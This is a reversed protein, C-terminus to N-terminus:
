RQSKGKAMQRKGQERKWVARALLALAIAICTWAFVDGHRSYFTRGGVFDFRAVLVAAEHRPLRNLVRGYPDIVCTIGDNTARLLYRHNEVARLRAMELHQAGAASDGFWADNSINVLVGPADTVLRRVLQPFIAEYCIFLSLTGDRTEAPRYNTGPVFNGAEHTIKGVLGPFAWWPVYEGFPVLHIKDYALLVRGEPDLVVASNLPQSNQPGTFNVSGVVVYAHAERAMRESAARFIPDRDFYFPAPNEPWVILPAPGTSGQRRVSAVSAEVLNNLPAPNQWPAWKDIESVVMPVNPQVLHVTRSAPPLPPLSLAINAVIILVSWGALAIRAAVRRPEIWIWALLASTTAALFSLGYVATVTAIRRLGDAQVAYGLLNWPVGTILYTRAIEMAVWLFPALLLARRSSHRAAWSTILGFAGFFVAFVVVYLGLVGFALIPSLGGHLEMVDVFWHTCGALFLAGSVYGLLFGRKLNPEVALAVLLPAIAFWVM